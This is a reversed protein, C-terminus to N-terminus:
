PRLGIKCLTGHRTSNGNEPIPQVNAQRVSGRSCAGSFGPTRRAHSFWVPNAYRGSAGFQTKRLRRKGDDAYSAPRHDGTDKGATAITYYSLSKLLSGFAGM